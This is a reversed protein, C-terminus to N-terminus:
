GTAGVDLRLNKILHNRTRHMAVYYDHRRELLLNLFFKALLYGYRRAVPHQRAVALPLKGRIRSMSSAIDSSVLVPFFSWPFNTLITAVRAVTGNSDSTAVYM